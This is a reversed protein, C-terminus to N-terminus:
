GLVFQREGEESSYHVAGAKSLLDVELRAYDDGAAWQLTLGSESAAARTFQGQFAPHRNRLRILDLLRQVVPKGLDRM